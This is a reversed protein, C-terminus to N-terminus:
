LYLEPYNEQNIEGLEGILDSLEFWATDPTVPNQILVDVGPNDLADLGPLDKPVTWMDYWVGSTMGCRSDEEGWTSCIEPKLQVKM